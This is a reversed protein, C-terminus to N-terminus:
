RPACARHTWVTIQVDPTDAVDAALRYRGLAIRTLSPSADAGDLQPETRMAWKSLAAEFATTDSGGATAVVLSGGKSLAEQLRLGWAEQNLCRELFRDVVIFDFSGIEVPLWTLQKFTVKAALTADLAPATVAVEAGGHTCTVQEGALLRESTSTFLGNYDQGVVSPFHSALKMALLGCEAGMNLAAGVKAAGVQACITALKDFYTTGSAYTRHLQVHLDAVSEGEIQRNASPKILSPCSGPICSIDPVSEPMCTLRVPTPNSSKVFRFGAHQMFHRRFAFRAFRSAEDGTSIFSGGLIMTHRGDFCPSSFDDYLAHSKFGDLGNFHDEVWQWVNGQADHVGASSPEFMNVPSSTGFKMNMNHEFSDHYIVDAAVTNETGAAAPTLM